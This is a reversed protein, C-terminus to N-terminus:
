VNVGTEDDFSAKKKKKVMVVDPSRCVASVHDQARM